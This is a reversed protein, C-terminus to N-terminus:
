SCLCSQGSPPVAAGPEVQEGVFGRSLHCRQGRGEIGNREMRADQTMEQM